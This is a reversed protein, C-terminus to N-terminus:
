TLLYGSSQGDLENLVDRHQVPWHDDKVLKLGIIGLANRAEDLSGQGAFEDCERRWAWWRRALDRGSVVRLLGADRIEATSGILEELGREHRRDTRPEYMWRREAETFPVAAFLQQFSRHLEGIKSGDLGPEPEIFRRGIDLEALDEFADVDDEDWQASGSRADREGQLEVFLSIAYSGVDHGGAGFEGYREWQSSAESSTSM